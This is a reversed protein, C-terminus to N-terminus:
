AITWGTAEDIEAEIVVRQHGDIASELRYQKSGGHEPLLRVIRFDGAPMRPYGAQRAGVFRVTQGVRYKHEGM